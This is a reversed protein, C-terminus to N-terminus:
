RDRLDKGTLQIFVTELSPDEIRIDRLTFGAGAAASSISAFLHESGQVTLLVCDSRLHHDRVGPLMRTLLAALASPDANSAVSVMTDADM